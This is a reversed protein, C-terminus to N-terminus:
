AGRGRFFWWAGAAVVAVVAAVAGGVGVAVGAAGLAKKWNLNATLQEYNQLVAALYKDPALEFYGNSHQAYVADHLNGTQLAAVVNPKLLIHAMDLFGAQPTSYKKFSGNYPTGDAHHDVHPFSGADGTGQVAGWNNSGAGPGTGWGKGYLGEGRAVALVYQREPEPMAPDATKAVNYAWSDLTAAANPVPAPAAGGTAKAWSAPGVVGDAALAHKQQWVRTANATATGFVGDTAIGLIKQWAQVDPGRSGVKLTQM